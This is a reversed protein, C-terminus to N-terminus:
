LLHAKRPAFVEEARARLCDKAAELAAEGLKGPDKGEPVRLLLVNPIGAEALKELQNEDQPAPFILNEVGVEKALAKAACSAAESLLRSGAFLDRTRRATAIFEQVPGLAIALLRDM